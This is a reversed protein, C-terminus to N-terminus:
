PDLFIYMYMYVSCPKDVDRSLSACPSIMSLQQKVWLGYVSLFRRVTAVTNSVCVSCLCFSASKKLWWPICTCLFCWFLWKLRTVQVRCLHIYGRVRCFIWCYHCSSSCTKTLLYNHLVAEWRRYVPSNWGHVTVRRSLTVTEQKLHMWRLRCVLM